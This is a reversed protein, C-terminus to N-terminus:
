LKQQTIVFRLLYKEHSQVGTDFFDNLVFWIINTNCLIIRWFLNFLGITSKNKIWTKNKSEPQLVLAM